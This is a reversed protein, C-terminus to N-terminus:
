GSSGASREPLRHEGGPGGDEGALWAGLMTGVLEAIRLQAPTVDSPLRRAEELGPWRARGTEPDVEVPPDYGDHEIGAARRAEEMAQYHAFYRAALEGVEPDEPGTLAEAARDLRDQEARLKEDTALLGFDAAQLAAREPGFIRETVLLDDLQDPRLPGAGLRELVEGVAPSLLGVDSDASRLRRLVERQARVAAEKEALGHDLAELVAQRPRHGDATLVTRIDDLSLGAETMRRIWLLRVIDEYGYRRRDDTGRGPEPLLGIQHYHRIARPTTGVLGAAEGIKVTRRPVPPDFTM